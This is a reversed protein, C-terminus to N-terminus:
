SVGKTPNRSLPTIDAVLEINVSVGEKDDVALQFVKVGGDEHLV